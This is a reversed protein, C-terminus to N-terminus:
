GRVNPDLRTLQDFLRMASQELLTLGDRINEGRPDTSDSSDAPTPEDGNHTNALQSLRYSAHIVMATVADIRKLSLQLASLPAEKTTPLAPNALGTPYIPINRKTKSM